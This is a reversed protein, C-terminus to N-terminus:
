DHKVLAQAFRILDDGSDHCISVGGLLEWGEELAANVEAEFDGIVKGVAEGIATEIVLYTM